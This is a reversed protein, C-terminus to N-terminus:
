GRFERPAPAPTAPLPARAPAGIAPQAFSCLEFVPTWYSRSKSDRLEIRYYRHYDDPRLGFIPTRFEASSGAAIAVKRTWLSDQGSNHVLQFPEGPASAYVRYGMYWLDYPPGRDGVLNFEVDRDSHHRIRSVLDITRVSTDCTPDVPQFSSRVPNAHSPMGACGAQLAALFATPIASFRLKTM